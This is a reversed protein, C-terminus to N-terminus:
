IFAVPLPADGDDVEVEGTVVSTNLAAWSMEDWSAVYEAMRCFLVTSMVLDDTNGHKAGYSNGSAVFTKLESILAKSNIKMKESEILSKMRSCAEMKSRNTTAFGKRKGNVKNHPDHLMTGPINEEGTDRIVVLAAEGLTNNEVSWYIEPQGQQEIEKAIERLTKIQGEIPTKNHQWEAVQKLTPLEYVQIAANDGGTGMSPDLSIVYACTPKIPEYWRVQGTKRIPDIGELKTLKASNILTEEFSIFECEHERLFRDEGLEERQEAAWKEDRDPHEDWKAFYPKFGNRGVEQENGYEDMLKNAGFWIDAFQDEDTNPTSTIIVKGGTSVTPSISTWFERAINPEIFAFEDVYVLSISMGRGTKATTTKAVIRSSNDFEVSKKNYTLVGSRIHDPMNEYAYQIRGMIELADDGSKSAILVTVDENFMAYWLLYGAAVTTKGLQRGLMNISKRYNHYCDVLGLQYDFPKFPISGKTPHQVMMFNEMFYLPGSVPDTCRTLEEIQEPTYRVKKYAKKILRDDGYASM